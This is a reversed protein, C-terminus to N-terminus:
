SIFILQVLITLILILYKHVGLFKMQIQSMALPQLNRAYRHILPIKWSELSLFSIFYSFCFIYIIASTGALFM